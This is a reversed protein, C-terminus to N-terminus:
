TVTLAVTETQEFGNDGSWTLSLTGSATAVTTFILYPNAAMAPSFEASFVTEGEYRCVFNTIIDRPYLQGSPGARYGTEMPHSILARIEITDGRRATKPANILTRAM